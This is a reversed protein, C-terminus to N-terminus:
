KPDLWTTFLNIKAFNNNVSPTVSNVLSFFAIFTVLIANGKKSITRWVFFFSVTSELQINRSDTGFNKKKSILYYMVHCFAFIRGCLIHLIWQEQNIEESFIVLYLYIQIKFWPRIYYAHLFIIKFFIRFSRAHIPDNWVIINIINHFKEYLLKWFYLQLTIIIIIIYETVKATKLNLKSNKKKDISGQMITM